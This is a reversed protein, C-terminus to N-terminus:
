LFKVALKQLYNYVSIFGDVVKSTYMNWTIEKEM